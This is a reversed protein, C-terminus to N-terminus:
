CIDLSATLKPLNTLLHLTLKLYSFSFSFQKSKNKRWAQHNSCGVAVKKSHSEFCVNECADSRFRPMRWGGNRLVAALIEGKQPQFDLDIFMMQYKADKEFASVADDSSSVEEFEIKGDSIKHLM